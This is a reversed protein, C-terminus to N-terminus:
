ESGGKRPADDDLRPLFSFVILTFAFGAMFLLLGVCSVYVAPMLDPPVVVANAVLAAIGVLSGLFPVTRSLPPIPRGDLDLARGLRVVRAVWAAIGVMCLCFLVSATRWTTAETFGYRQLLFPLLAFGVALLSFSIMGRMRTGSVRPDDISRGRGLIGVLSAFGAFAISVEAM